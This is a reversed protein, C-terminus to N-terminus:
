ARSSVCQVQLLVNRFAEMEYPFEAVAELESVGLYSCMDQVVEGAVEMNDTRICVTGGNDPVMSIWLPKGDRLSVFTM